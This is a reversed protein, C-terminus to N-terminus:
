PESADIAAPDLAVQRPRLLRHDAADPLEHVSHLAAGPVLRASLEGQSAEQVARAIEYGYSAGAAILELIVPELAGRVLDPNQTM